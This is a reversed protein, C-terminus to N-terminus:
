NLDIVTIVVINPDVFTVIIRLDKTNDDNFGRLAYKWDTGTTNLSDKADERKSNFIAEELDSILINREKMRLQAHTSFRLRGNESAGILEQIVSPRKIPRM